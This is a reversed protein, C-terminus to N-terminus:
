KKPRAEICALVRKVVWDGDADEEKGGKADRVLGWTGKAIERCKLEVQKAAERGEDARLVGLGAQMRRVRGWWGPTAVFTEWIRERVRTCDGLKERRKPLMDYYAFAARVFEELSDKADGWRAPIVPLPMAPAHVPLPEYKNPRQSASEAEPDPSISPKLTSTDSGTATTGNATTTTAAATPTGPAPTSKAKKSAPQSSLSPESERRRKKYPGRKKRVQKVPVDESVAPTVRTDPAAPTTAAGPVVAAAPTSGKKLLTSAVEPSSSEPSPPRTVIDNTPEVRRKKPPPQPIPDEPAPTIDVESSLASSSDPAPISPIDREPTPTRYNPIPKAANRGSRRLSYSM